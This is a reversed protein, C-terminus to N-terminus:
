QVQHKKIAELLATKAQMGTLKEKQEGNKFVIFTPVAMIGYEQAALPAADIDLKCINVTDGIEDAIQNITPLIMKCPMCWTAWFDVLSLKDEGITAKFNDDTLIKVKESM